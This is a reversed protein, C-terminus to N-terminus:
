EEFCKANCCYQLQKEFVSLHVKLIAFLTEKTLRITDLSQGKTLFNENNRVYMSNTIPFFQNPEKINNEELIEKIIKYM